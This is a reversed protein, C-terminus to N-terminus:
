GATTRAGNGAGAGNGGNSRSYGLAPGYVADILWEHFKWAGIEHRCYRGAGGHRARLGKHQVESIKNDEAIFIETNTGYQQVQPAIEPDGDFYKQAIDKHVMLRLILTMKEPGDPYAVYYITSDVANICMFTPYGLWIPMGKFDDSIDNIRPDFPFLPEATDSFSLEPFQGVFLQWPQETLDPFCVWGKMPAVPQFTEAHVWPVHYEEHFNEVYAKWNCDLTYEWRHTTVQNEMDYLNLGFKDTETLQPGLPEAETDLNIFIFGQWVETKVAYLPYDAKDFDLTDRFEPAARLQGDLGFMWGHYPCRFAKTNGDGEVIQCGRHRCFNIHARIENDADRVIVIPETAINRTMYDGVNPIDEVRGVCQWQKFFIRELELEYIEPSTYYHPPFTAAELAPKRAAQLEDETIGTKTIPETADIM